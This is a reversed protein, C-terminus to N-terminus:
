ADRQVPFIAGKIAAHQQQENTLAPRAPESHQSAASGRSGGGHSLVRWAKRVAGGVKGHHEVAGYGAEHGVDGSRDTPAVGQQHTAADRSVHLHPKHAGAERAHAGATRAHSGGSQDHEKSRAHRHSPPRLADLRRHLDGEAMDQGQQEEQLMELLEDVQRQKVADVGAAGAAATDPEAPCHRSCAHCHCYHRVERM